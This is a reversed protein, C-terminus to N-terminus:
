GGALEERKMELELWREEAAAHEGHAATLRATAANFGAPDRTYFDAGALKKELAAIEATLKEMQVPLQDLERQEKFSLKGSPKSAPKAKAAGSSGSAPPAVSGVRTDSAFGDTGRGAIRQHRADTFGGAYEMAEGEEVWITSSVVRDLFDRDHSVLLLTGDYDSLVEELLDLTEMDLDNTPEDLILLNSPSALAKALLLRNREGGSLSGVPQRAQKEDFLFDRLYSVVHRPKGRVMVQDGGGGIESHVLADWLTQTPDLTERKQDLYVPTLNTGLKVKGHDPALHGTLMRLLTTKGAGNPGVIGVADGRQIRTSFSRIITRGEYDKGIAEAEVVLKGSVAGTEIELAATGARSIQAARQERLDGLARLRGQNRKRRAPIGRKAWETEQAILKDLKAREVEEQAWIGEQWDAFGHFPGDMRRLVGRDLWLVGNTVRELFARDHSIVVMAGRFGSLEEELWQIAPLDLHNTPEDLLLIDPEGVLTRALAARRAEGGSLGDTGRTPELGLAHLLAEARYTEDAEAEPLGGAAYDLVTKYASLDPEQPLYAARMGGQQVREGRDPEILGAVVKLLTSKGSGNRGVLAMRDGAAIGLDFGDFLTTEGFGLSLDKLTLLPNAM